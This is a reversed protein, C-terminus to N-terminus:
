LRHTVQPDMGIRVGHGLDFKHKFNFASCAVSTLTFSALLHIILMIQMYTYLMPLVYM